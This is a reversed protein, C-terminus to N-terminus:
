FYKLKEVVELTNTQCETEVSKKKTNKQKM